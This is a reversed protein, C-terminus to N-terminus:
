KCFLKGDSKLKSNLNVKVCLDKSGMKEAVKNAYEELELEEM